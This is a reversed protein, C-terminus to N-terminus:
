RLELAGIELLFYLARYVESTPARRDAAVRQAVSRLSAAGDAKALLDHGIAGVSLRGIGRAAPAAGVARDLLSPPDCLAERPLAFLLLTLLLAIPPRM